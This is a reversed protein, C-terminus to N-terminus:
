VIKSISYEDATPDMTNGYADKGRFKFVMHSPDITADGFDNQSIWFTVEATYSSEDYKIASPNSPLRVETAPVPLGLNYPGGPTEYTARSIQWNGPDQMSFPDMAKDFMFELTFSKAANPAILADDITSVLTGEGASLPFDGTNNVFSIKPDAMKDMYAKLTSAKQNDLGSLIDMEGQAKDTMKMDTYLYGLDLYGDTFKRNLAVAKKFQTEAETYRKQSRLSQGLAEYANPDNSTIQVVRRFQKEAEAYRGTKMYIQGLAYRNNASSPNVQVAQTYQSEADKYQGAKFYINGLNLRAGDNTSNQKIMQQYTNIAEKTNNLKTYSDALYEYAKESYDSNPSLAISRKLEKVAGAYDNKTLRDIGASLFTNALGDLQSQSSVTSSFLYAINSTQSLGLTYDV